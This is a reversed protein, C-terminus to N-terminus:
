LIYAGLECLDFGLDVWKNGLEGFSFSEHIKV